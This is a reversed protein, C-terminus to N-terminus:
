SRGGLGFATVVSRPEKERKSEKAPVTAASGGERRRERRSEGDVSGNRHRHKRRRPKASAQSISDDPAVTELDDIDTGAREVNAHTLPRVTSASAASRLAAPPRSAFSTRASAPLPFDAPERYAASPSAPPPLAVEYPRITHQSRTPYTMSRTQPGRAPHSAHSPAPVHRVSRSVHSPERDPRVTRATTTASTHVSPPPPLARRSHVSPEYYEMMPTPPAEIARTYTSRGSPMDYANTSGSISRHKSVTSRPTPPAEITQYVTTSRRAEPNAASTSNSEGKVMAYAITAGAAAGLLTGMLAKSDETSGKREATPSTMVTTTTIINSVITRLPSRESVNNTAVSGAPVYSVRSGKPRSVTSM